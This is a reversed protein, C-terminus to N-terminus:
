LTGSEPAVLLTLNTIARSKQSCLFSITESVDKANALTKTPSKEKVIDIFAQPTGSNMGGSMVGPAVSYVRVSYPSLEEKLATLMGQLAFKTVSYGGRAKTNVGSIVGATTIGIMVGSKHEKLRTACTSLFNFSGFINTEFQKRLDSVSSLHLQKREPLTGATHVCVYINGLEKEIKEITKEVQKHNELDCQYSKHGSGSLKSVAELVTSKKSKHYLLAVSFGDLALKRVVESGVYGMGGSIVAVKKARESTDGSM